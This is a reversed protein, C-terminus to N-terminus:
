GEMSVLERIWDSIYFLDFLNIKPLLNKDGSVNVDCHIDHHTISMNGDTAIIKEMRQALRPPLVNKIEEWIEPCTCVRVEEFFLFLLVFTVANKKTHFNVLKGTDWIKTNNDGDLPYHTTNKLIVVDYNLDFQDVGKHGGGHGPVGILRSASGCDGVGLMIDSDPFLYAKIRAILDLILWTRVRLWRGSKQGYFTMCTTNKFQMAGRNYKDMYIYEDHLFNILEPGDVPCSIKEEPEPPKYKMIFKLVEDIDQKAKSLYGMQKLKTTEDM